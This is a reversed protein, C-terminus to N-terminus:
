PDSQPAPATSPGANIRAIVPDEWSGTIRYDVRGIQKLPDKFVESFILLAAGVAPGGAIAGAIPLSSGFNAYVSATQEYDKDAIGARGVVAVQAAPGRLTLNDTFANGNRVSFNGEIADFAFGKQFVDRFDLGLRRPLAALSILGFVRGAKPDVSLLNGDSVAISVQGYVDRLFGGDLEDDWNLDMAFTAEDSDIAGVSGLAEMTTRVDTSDITVSFQSPSGGAYRWAGSARGEFGRGVTNIREIRLGDEFREIQATLQGFNMDDFWFDQVDLRLSPLTRPDVGESDEGGSAWRLSQLNAIVPERFSAYDRPLFIAGNAEPSEVEILWERVNRDLTFRGATLTQGFVSAENFSLNATRLGNESAGDRGKFHDLWGDVDLVDVSGRLALGARPDVRATGDNVAITGREVLWNRATDVVLAASLADGL